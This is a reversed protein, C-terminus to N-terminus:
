LYDDDTNYYSFFENDFPSFEGDLFGINYLADGSMILSAQSMGLVVGDREMRIKSVLEGTITRLEGIVEGEKLVRNKKIKNILVGGEKARIWSSKEIYISTDKPQDFRKIMGLQFLVSEVFQHGAKTIEANMRLGEGGEFVLCIKDHEALAQRLSGDRSSSNVVVPVSLKDVFEKVDPRGFNCRVQPTNYRGIPGSHLDIFVDGVMNINDFIYSAFRNGFSGKKNGPFCRNIDKRDPLYRNKNMFGYINVIPVVILTGQSLKRKSRMLSQAVRLGEIEDGHLCATVVVCPSIDESSRHIYIPASVNQIGYFSPFDAHYTKVRGVPVKKLDIGFFQSNM